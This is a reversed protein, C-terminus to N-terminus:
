TKCSDQAYTTMLSALFSFRVRGFFLQSQVRCHSVQISPRVTSPSFNLMLGSDEETVQVGDMERGLDHKFMELQVSNVVRDKTM